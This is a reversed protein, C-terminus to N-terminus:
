LVAAYIIKLVDVQVSKCKMHMNTGTILDHNLFAQQTKGKSSYTFQRGTNKKSGKKEEGIQKTM